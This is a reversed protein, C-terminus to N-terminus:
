PHFVSAYPEVLARYEGLVGSATEMTSCGKQARTIKASKRNTSAWWCNGGLRNATSTTMMCYTKCLVHSQAISWESWQMCTCLQVFCPGIVCMCFLPSKSSFVIHIFHSPLYLHQINLTFPSSISSLKWPLLSPRTFSGAPSHVVGCHVCQSKDSPFPHQQRVMVGTLSKRVEVLVCRNVMFLLCWHKYKSTTHTLWICPWKMNLIFASFRNVFIIRKM